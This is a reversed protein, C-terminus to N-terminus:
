IVVLHFHTLNAPLVDGYLGSTVVGSDKFYKWAKLGGNCRGCSKCCSLVNQNSIRIQLCGGSKICIRDSIAEAAGFALM